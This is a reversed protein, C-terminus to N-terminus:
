SNGGKQQEGYTVGVAAGAIDPPQLGGAALPPDQTATAPAASVNPTSFLGGAAVAAAAAAAREDLASVAKKLSLREAYLAERQREVERREGELVAEMEAFQEMKLELKKMQSEIVMHVLRKMEKEEYDALVKAKAAAAGLAAYAAKQLNTRSLGPPLEAASFSEDKKKVPVSNEVDTFEGRAKSPTNGRAVSQTESEATAAASAAGTLERIACQAAAAAVGPNVVSALFAVVSMVPNDAQSFPARDHQMPGISEPTNELYPDEINMQLFHTICQERTRTGVHDAIRNWDDEFNEIGELLLYLEEDTWDATSGDAQRFRSTAGTDEAKIFDGSFM